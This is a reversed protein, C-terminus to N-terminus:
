ANEAGMKEEVSRFSGCRDRLQALSGGSLADGLLASDVCVAKAGAKAWEGAAYAGVGGMPIIRDALGLDHLRYGMAHGVVDAPYLVVGSVPLALAARVERPTMATLYCPLQREAAAEALDESADDCLAFTAGADVAQHIQMAGAVRTAGIKARAGFIAVVDAFSENHIPLAFLSFGEQVLVEVAGVYDDLSADPLCVIIGRLEMPDM